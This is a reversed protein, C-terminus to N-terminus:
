FKFINKLKKGIGRGLQELVAGANLGADGNDVTEPPFGTHM